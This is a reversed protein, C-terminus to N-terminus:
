RRGPPDVLDAIMRSRARIRALVDFSMQGLRHAETLEDSDIARNWATLLEDYQRGDIEQEEILGPVDAISM